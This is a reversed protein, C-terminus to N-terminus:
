RVRIKLNDILRTSGIYVALAILLDGYITKVPRLTDASVIDVYDIRASKKQRILKRMEETIRALSREGNNILKRALKLSKYIVAADLRQGPTLYSNRSSMALGGKERVTPMVKLRIDMNLDKTMKRIVVAQQADKQGFYAADPKVINFLKAVVTSVGKFHGPRSRGCLTDNLYEVDVYTRYPHPYMQAAEPYFLVDTGAKRLAAEDGKLDRPYKKFDEKPGFQLPNVFVSAVTVDNEEASRRVLSLHGKHLYGM